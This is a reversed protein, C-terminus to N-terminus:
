VFGRLGTGGVARALRRTSYELVFVGWLVEATKNEEDLKALLSTCHAYFAKMQSLSASHRGIIPPPLGRIMTLVFPSSPLPSELGTGGTACRCVEVTFVGTDAELLKLTAELEKVGKRCIELNKRTEELM